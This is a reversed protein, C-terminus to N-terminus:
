SPWPNVIEVGSLKFDDVNRTVVAASGDLDLATAAILGDIVAMKRGQREARGQLQGWLLAVPATIGLVRGEFRRPLDNSVWEQLARKRKSAALKSVGKQLEGLTLVSLFLGEEPQAQVWDLLQPEPQRKVFESLVCTDLLLYRV